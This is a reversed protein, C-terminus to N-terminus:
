SARLLITAPLDEEHLDDGEHDANCHEQAEDGVFANRPVHVARGYGPGSQFCDTDICGNDDLCARWDLLRRTMQQVAIGEEVARICIGM